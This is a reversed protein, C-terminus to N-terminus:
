FADFLAAADIASTAAARWAFEDVTAALFLSAAHSRRGVAIGSTVNTRPTGSTTGTRDVAGDIYLTVATGSISVEILHKVGNCINTAGDTNTDVGGDSQTNVRVVGSTLLFIAFHRSSIGNSRDVLVQTAGPPSAKQFALLVSLTGVDWTSSDGIFVYDDVGDLTAATDPDDAVLGTAGLAPGGSYTGTRNNGSADAATTAGAAEGLRWWVGWARDTMVDTWSPTTHPTLATAGPGTTTTWYTVTVLEGGTLPTDLLYSTLSEQTYDAVPIMVGDVYVTLTAQYPAAALVIRGDNAAALLDDRRYHLADPITRWGAVGATTGLFTGGAGPKIQAPKITSM